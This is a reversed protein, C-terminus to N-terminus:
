HTKQALDLWSELFSILDCAREASTKALRHGNAACYTAYASFIGIDMEALSMLRFTLPLDFRLGNHKVKISLGAFKRLAALDITAPDIGKSRLFTPDAQWKSLLDPSQVGAALVAQVNRANM